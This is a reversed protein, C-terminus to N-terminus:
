AAAPQPSALGDGSGAMAASAARSGTISSATAGGGRRRWRQRRLGRTLADLFLESRAPEDPEAGHSEDEGANEEDFVRDVIRQERRRHARDEAENEADCEGSGAFPQAAARQLALDGRDLGVINGAGQGAGAEENRKALM